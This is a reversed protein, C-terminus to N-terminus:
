LNVQRKQLKAITPFYVVLLSLISLIWGIPWVSYLFTLNPFYPFVVYVWFFRLLCMYVFTAITPAISKGMGRLTGCFVENIGCIFYTSSIIVMKQRSYEIVAPTTSMISTLQGSFIASLFGLSAGFATTILIARILTQKVRKINGAGVNQAVYPTVALSPALSIQYLVSDFQNAISVGTTADPGFGNVATTIVVNAFSYLASQVGAPVGVQLIAGLEKIDFKIKRLNVRVIDQGKVLTYFALLGAVTNSIATAIAVGAVDMKFAKIFLFTLIVKLIGGLVLFYMPRKTDGTARLIAACFNYLMLPPVGYFFIRFYLTAQALLSEHCNTMKLFSEAFIVGILMLLIGSILSFWVSTVAAKEARSKEGAGVRRAVIINAGVSIGILLSTCLVTLTGCAGVAGVATDNSYVKLIAMDIINFLVQTVNMVMIPLTLLLLGKVIPGHLMDVNKKNM